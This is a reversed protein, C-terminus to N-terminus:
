TFAMGLAPYTNEEHLPSADPDIVGNVTVMFAFLFIVALKVNIGTLVNVKFADPFLPVTVLFGLRSDYELPALTCSVAVGFAPKVKVEHLPSALPEIFGNVTVIFAFLFIVAVKVAIGGEPGITSKPVTARNPIIEPTPILL